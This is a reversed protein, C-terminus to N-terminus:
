DTSRRNGFRSHHHNERSLFFFSAEVRSLYNKGLFKMPTFFGNERVMSSEIINRLHVSSQKAM